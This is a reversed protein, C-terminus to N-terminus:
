NGESKKEQGTYFERVELDELHTITVRCLDLSYQHHRGM